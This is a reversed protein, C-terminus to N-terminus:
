LERFLNIRSIEGKVRSKFSYPQFIPQDRSSKGFIGGIQEWYGRNSYRMRHFLTTPSLLILTVRVNRLVLSEAEKRLRRRQWNRGTLVRHQYTDQPVKKFPENSQEIPPLDALNTKSGETHGDVLTRLLRLVDPPEIAGIQMLRLLRKRQEIQEARWAMRADIPDAYKRHFIATSRGIDFLTQPVRASTRRKSAFYGHHVQALPVIATCYGSVAFRMNVDTEDLYFAYNPDFGGLAALVDRRFACNTGETKVAQCEPPSFVMANRSPVQLPRTRGATDVSRARWQFSIGNRGRVYGGAAAVTPDTFPETLRLLWSPEPVADDDIFAVIEGSAVALGANRAKSINAEGFEVTKIQNSTPLDAAADLGARDAVVVVEYNPHKMQFVGLLCRALANPRERSVIIVSTSLAEM